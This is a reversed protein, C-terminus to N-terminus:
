NDSESQKKSFKSSTENYKKELYDLTSSLSGADYFKKNPLFSLLYLWKKMSKKAKM